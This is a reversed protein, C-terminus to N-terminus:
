NFIHSDGYKAIIERAFVLLDCVRQGGPHQSSWLELNCPRNDHRIGNKHHVTELTTLERGIIGEMVVRHEPKYKPRGSSSDNGVLLSIYGNRTLTIGGNFNPNDKGFKGRMGNNIKSSHSGIFRPMGRNYHHLQPIIYQGCGCECIHKGEQEKM